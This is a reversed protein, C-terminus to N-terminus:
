NTTAPDVEIDWNIKESVATSKTLITLCLFIGNPYEQDNTKGLLEGINKTVDLSTNLSILLNNYALASALTVGDWLIDKDIEVLNGSNDKTYFGLDNNNASTLAPSTGYIGNIRDPLSLPGSLIYIDGDVAGAATIAPSRFPVKPMFKGITFVTNKPKNTVGLSNYTAM